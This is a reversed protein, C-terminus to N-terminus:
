SSSAAKWCAILSLKFDAGSFLLLTLPCFPLLLLLALLKLCGGLSNISGHSDSISVGSWANQPSEELRAFGLLGDNPRGDRSGTISIDAVELM